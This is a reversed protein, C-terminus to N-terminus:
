KKRRPILPIDFITTIIEFIHKLVVPATHFVAGLLNWVPIAPTIVRVVISGITLKERYYVDSERNKLDSQVDYYIAGINYVYCILMPIWYLYIALMSNFKFGMIYDIM